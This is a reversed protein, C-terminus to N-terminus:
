TKVESDWQTAAALQEWKLTNWKKGRRQLEKLMMQKTEVNGYNNKLMFELYKTDVTSVHQGKHKGWPMVDWGRRLEKCMPHHVVIGKCWPCRESPPKKRSM